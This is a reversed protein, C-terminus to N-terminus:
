ERRVGPGIPSLPLSPIRLLIGILLWFFANLVFNQYSVMGGYTYPILILFAFWFIMFSLPFWPTGKLMRTARWCAKLISATLALWVLLGAIGFELVLTGYGNEVGGIPAVKFFRAVYQVGLSCTGIGYGWPWKPYNFAALFNQFPYDVARFGLESHSSYPSLTESYLAVRSLLAEPYAIFTIVAAVAIFAATRGIMRVVKRVEGERWPAGWLFALSGAILSLLCWMFAGRSASLVAAMSIVALSLVSFQRGKKSRLLLYGSFGFALILSLTMYSAFRGDSVFVSTPRYMTLGSVPAARYLTSLERLDEAPVEPNLFTHGLVSQVIGLAAIVDALALNVFFFRRLDIESEFLGYGVFLLPIYFYYLKFGLAGFILHPSNPNFIQVVGLWVFVGLPLLFPPRFGAVARKRFAIFFSLFLILALVDKTFYILMNNGMFKRILDEFLLWAFFPYIGKRWDRLVAIAVAFGAAGMAAYVADGYDEGLVYQAAEYAVLAAALWFVVRLIKQNQRNPEAVFNFVSM